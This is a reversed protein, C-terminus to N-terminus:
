RKSLFCKKEKKYNKIIRPYKQFGYKKIVYLTVLQNKGSVDVLSWLYM